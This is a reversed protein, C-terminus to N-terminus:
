FVNLQASDEELRRLYTPGVRKTESEVALCDQREMKKYTLGILNV